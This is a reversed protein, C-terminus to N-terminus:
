IKRWLIDGINQGWEKYAYITGNLLVKKKLSRITLWISVIGLSLTFQNSLGKFISEVIL